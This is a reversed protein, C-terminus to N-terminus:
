KTEKAFFATAKKLIEREEKLISVEKRLRVVEAELGENKPKVVGEERAIRVWEYLSSEGIDLDKAIRAVSAGEEIVLRVADRKFQESYIRNRKGKEEM